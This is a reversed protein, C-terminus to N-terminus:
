FTIFKGIGVHPYIRDYKYYIIRRDDIPEYSHWRKTKSTNISLDNDEVIFTIPLNRGNAIRVAEVFYGSDTAGDGVFCWVCAGSSLAADKRSKALAFAVGVAPGVNGGVIATTYFNITKDYIHMSRGLGKCIGSPLGLLEDLLKQEDGGKLLYHYHNRHTSFVFDEEKIHKFIDLLKSENGGCLHLPCNIKGEEFLTAVKREFALLSPKTWKTKMQNRAGVNVMKM